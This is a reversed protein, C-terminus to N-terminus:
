LHAMEDIRILVALIVGFEFGYTILTAESTLAILLYVCLTYEAFGDCCSLDKWKRVMRYAGYCLLILGIVGFQGIYYPYGSDGLVARATGDAQWFDYSYIFHYVGSFYRGSLHSAYTGFGSGVPFCRSLLTLAGMYLVERGSTSWSAYLQLKSYSAVVVAIVIGSVYLIKVRRLWSGGYRMFIFVAAFAIGKTRMTLVICLVLSITYFTYERQKECVTLFIIMVVCAYVLATPHSFLFQYPVIGNRVSGTQSMGIDAFLSVIGLILIIVSIFRIWRIGRKAVSRSIRRDWGLMRFIYFTLPFKMCGVMDRIIASASYAYKHIFNGLLGTVILLIWPLVDKISTGKAKFRSRKAWLILALFLTILFLAEDWYGYFDPMHFRDSLIGQFILFIVFLSWAIDTM